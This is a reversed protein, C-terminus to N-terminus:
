EDDETDIYVTVTRELIADVIQKGETGGWDVDTLDRRNAQELALESAVYARAENVIKDAAELGHTAALHEGHITKFREVIYCEFLQTLVTCIDQSAGSLATEVQQFNQPEECIKEFLQGLADRLETEIIHNSSEQLIDAIALALSEPPLNQADSIGRAALAEVLGAKRVDSLFSAVRQAVPRVGSGKITTTKGGKGGGGGGRGGGGSGGGGNGSGGGGTDRAGGGTTSGSSSPASAPPHAAIYRILREKAEQPSITGFDAPVNGFGEEGGISCAQQVFQGMLDQAKQGAVPGNGLASSVARKVDTWKPSPPVSRSTGM